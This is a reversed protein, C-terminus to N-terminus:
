KKEAEESKKQVRINHLRECEKCRHEHNMKSITFGIETQYKFRGCSVCKFVRKDYPVEPMKGQDFKDIGKPM